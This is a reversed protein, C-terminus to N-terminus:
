PVQLRLPDDTYELSESAIRMADLFFPITPQGFHAYACDVQYNSFVNFRGWLPRIKVYGRENDESRNKETLKKTRIGERSSALISLLSQGRSSPGLLSWCFLVAFFIRNIYQHVMHKAWRIIMYFSNFGLLILQVFFYLLWQSYYLTEKFFSLRINSTHLYNYLLNLHCAFTLIISFLFFSLRFFLVFPFLLLYVEGM